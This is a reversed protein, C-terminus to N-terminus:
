FMKPQTDALTVDSISYLLSLLGGVHSLLVRLVQKELTSKIFYQAKWFNEQFYRTLHSFVLVLSTVFATRIFWGAFRVSDMKATFKKINQQTPEFSGEM